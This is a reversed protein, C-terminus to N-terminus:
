EPKAKESPLSEAGSTHVTKIFYSVATKETGTMDTYRTTGPKLTAILQPEESAAQRYLRFLSFGDFMVDAWEIVTLPRLKNTKKAKIYDPPIPNNAALSIILRCSGPSQRGNRDIANIVYSYANGSRTLSDRMTNVEIRFRETKTTKGIENRTVLYATISTDAQRVDQWILNIVNEKVSARVFAPDAPPTDILPTATAKESLESVGSNKSESRAQYSYVIRGSLMESTDTFVVKKEGNVPLLGSIVVPQGSIGDSRFIRVGDSLGDDVNVTVEVGGSIGKVSVQPKEPKKPLDVKFWAKDSTFFRKGTNDYAKLFYYYTHGPWANVDYYITDGPSIKAYERFGQDKSESRFLSLNQIEGVTNCYWSVKIGYRDPVRGAKVRTIRTRTFMDSSVKLIESSVGANGFPDYPVIFYQEANIPGGTSDTFSYYTTDNVKTKGTWGSIPVSKGNDFRFPQFLPAPNEGASYWKIYNLKLTRSSESIRISDFIATHPMTVENTILPSTEIRAADLRTIRYKFNGNTAKADYAMVGLAMRVPYNKWGNLSDVTGTQQARLYLAELKAQSPLPQSPFIDKTQNVKDMFQQFTAPLKVEGVKVWNDSADSREVLYASLPNGTPIQSGTFLFVGKPGPWAQKTEQALSLSCSALLIIIFASAKISSLRM